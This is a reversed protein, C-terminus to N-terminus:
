KNTKIIHIDRNDLCYAITGLMEHLYIGIWNKLCKVENKNQQYMSVSLTFHLACEFNDYNM